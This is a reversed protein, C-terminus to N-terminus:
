QQTIEIDARRNLQRGEDTKNSGIPRTNSYGKAVIRSPDIGKSILYSKVSQAREDSQKQNRASVGIADTNGGVEIKIAPNRKMIEVTVDLKYYADSRLDSRGFDFLVRSRTLEEHLRGTSMTDLPSCPITFKITDHVYLTDHIPEVVKPYEPRLYDPLEASAIDAGGCGSPLSHVWNTAVYGTNGNDGISFYADWKKSNFPAGINMPNTWNMWTSDLRKVMWIDYSGFGGRRDSAFFLTKDDPSIYPSIEDTEETSINLRLPFSYEGTATDLRSIWLDNMDSNTEDSFYLIMVKEDSSLTAGTYIGRSLTSYNKIKVPSPVSWRGDVIESFSLGRTNKQDYEGRLLIRRGSSSCWYVGNYKQSNIYDSMREAKMWGSDVSRISMWIDQGKRNAPGGDVTFFMAGGDKSVIPRIEHKVSNVKSGLNKLNQAQTQGLSIAFLAIITLLNKM